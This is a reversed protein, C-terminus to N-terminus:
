RRTSIGSTSRVRSPCLRGATSAIERHRAVSVMDLLKRRLGHPTFCEAFMFDSDSANQAAAALVKEALELLRRRNKDSLFAVAASHIDPHLTPGEEESVESEPVFQHSIM